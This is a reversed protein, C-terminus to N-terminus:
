RTVCSFSAADDISGAGKYRAVQPYPCLPRTRDVKGATRHEAVIRSPAEGKEVWQELVGIKDFVDPGEGGSCHGMGPIMFLRMWSSVQESGGGLESSSQYFAITSGPAVQQDAWGHYLLLKGGHKAFANLGPNLEDVNKDIAHAKAPDRDIDFTKWDWSDDQYVVYRFEDSFLDAPAPGGALRGWRLETGPEL